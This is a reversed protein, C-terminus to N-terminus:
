GTRKSKSERRNGECGGCIAALRWMAAASKSRRFIWRWCIGSRERPDANQQVQEVGKQGTYFRVTLSSAACSSRKTSKRRTSCCERTTAISAQRLDPRKPRELLQEFGKLKSNAKMSRREALSNKVVTM